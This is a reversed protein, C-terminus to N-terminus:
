KAFDASNTSFDISPRGFMAEFRKAVCVPHGDLIPPPYKMQLLRSKVVAVHWAPETAWYNEERKLIHVAGAEEFYGPWATVGNCLLRGCYFRRFLKSMDTNAPQTVTLKGGLKEFDMESVTTTCISKASAASFMLSLLALALIFRASSM